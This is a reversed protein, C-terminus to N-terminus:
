VGRGAMWERRAISDHPDPARTTLPARALRLGPQKSKWFEASQVVPGPHSVIPLATSGTGSVTWDILFLPNAVAFGHHDTRACNLGAIANDGQRKVFSGSDGHRVPLRFILQDQLWTLEGKYGRYDTLVDAVALLEGTGCNSAGSYEFTDAEPNLDAAFGTPYGAADGCRLARAGSGSVYECIAIDFVTDTGPAIVPSWVVGASSKEPTSSISAMRPPENSSFECVVVHRCTVFADRGNFVINWGVSGTSGAADGEVPTGMTTPSGNVPQAPQVSTTFDFIPDEIDPRPGADFLVIPVWRGQDPFVMLHTASRPYGGQSAHLRDREARLATLAEVISNTAM